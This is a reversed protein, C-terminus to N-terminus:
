HAKKRLSEMYDFLRDGDHDEKLYEAAIHGKDNEIALDAGNSALTKIAHENHLRAALFLATEGEHIILNIDSGANILQIVCKDAGIAIALSLLSFSKPLWSLSPIIDVIEKKQYIQNINEKQYELLINLAKDNDQLISIWLSISEFGELLILEEKLLFKLWLPNGETLLFYIWSFNYNNEFHHRDFRSNLLAFLRVLEKKNHSDPALSLAAKAKNFFSHKKAFSTNFHANFLMENNFINAKIIKHHFVNGSSIVNSQSVLTEGEVKSKLIILNAQYLCYILKDQASEYKEKDVFSMANEFDNYLSPCREKLIPLFEQGSPYLHISFSGKTSRKFFFADSIDNYFMALVKVADKVFFLFDSAADFIITESININLGDIVYKM